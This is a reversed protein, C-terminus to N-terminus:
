PTTVSITKGLEDQYFIYLGTFVIITSLYFHWTVQEALFIWGYLATFLPCMFGAFSLFTISYTKLLYGYLNHCFINSILITIVLWGIFPKFQTVPFLGEIPWATFLSGMGGALMALGNVMIPSYNKHRILKRMVIWSYSHCAVSIIVALEAYSLYFLEGSIQELPSSSILIPLLGVFGIVLGIWQKHTLREHFFLYSYLATMFPSLNYLFATKSASLTRLASFRLIYNIYMGFFIIQLFLWLHKRKVRFQSRAYVYQYLLLISGAIVMRSGALFIPTTYYNLLIKGILFSSAFLAYLIIILIM